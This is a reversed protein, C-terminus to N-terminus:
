PADDGLARQRALMVRIALAVTELRHCERCLTQYGDLGCEGGGEAVAQVHQAEWLPPISDARWWWRDWSLGYRARDWSLGYRAYIWLARIKAAEARDGIGRAEWYARRAEKVARADAVTDRGCRACVGHDREWVRKRAHATDTRLVWEDICINSCFTRRPPPVLGGCFRCLPRGQEDRQLPTRGPGPRARRTSM